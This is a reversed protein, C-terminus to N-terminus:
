QAFWGADIPRDNGNFVDYDLTNLDKGKTAAASVIRTGSGPGHLGTADTSSTPVTAITTTPGPVTRDLAQGLVVGFGSAESSVQIGLFRAHGLSAPNLRLTRDMVGANGPHGGPSPASGVPSQQSPTALFGHYFGNADSYGGVIKGSDSIGEAFSSGFPGNPDDINSYQGGSLLFGHEGFNADFYLGVIQGRDNIGQPLTFTSNPPDFTSYQGGSLLFGRANSNADYFAGVIDGRSNIGYAQTGYVGNPDDINTYQGGSLLFGHAAGNADSYNGAIQGRANIGTPSTYVANPVDLTTYHGGSLLFGHVTNADGFTGVIDGRSNIGQPITGLGDPDDLTAYQGHSLLFGHYEFDAGVYVGVIDGRSNIGNAQSAVTGNPDDITTFVCGGSPVTRDELGELRPRSRSCRHRHRQPVSRRSPRPEQDYAVKGSLCRFLTAFWM